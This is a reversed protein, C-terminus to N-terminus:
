LVWLDSWWWWPVVQVWWIYTIKLSIKIGRIRGQCANQGSRSHVFVRRNAEHSICSTSSITHSALLKVSISNISNIELITNHINGNIFHICSNRRLNSRGCINVQADITHLHEPSVLSFFNRSRMSRANYYRQWRDTKERIGWSLSDLCM